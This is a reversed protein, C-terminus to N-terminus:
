FAGDNSYIDKKHASYFPWNSICANNGAFGDYRSPVCQSPFIQVMALVLAKPLPCFSKIGRFSPFRTYSSTSHCPFKGLFAYSTKAQRLFVCTAIQNTM